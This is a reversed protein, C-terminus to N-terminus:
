RMSVTDQQLALPIKKLPLGKRRPEPDKAHAYTHLKAAESEVREKQEGRPEKLVARRMMPIHSSSYTILVVCRNRKGLTFTVTYRIANTGLLKHKQVSSDIGWWSGAAGTRPPLEMM